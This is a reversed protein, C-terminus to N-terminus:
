KPTEFKKGEDQTRLASESVRESGSLNQLFLRIRLMWEARRALNHIRKLLEALVNKQCEVLSNRMRTRLSVKWLIVAEGGRM